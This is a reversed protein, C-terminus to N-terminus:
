KLYYNYIDFKIVLEEYRKMMELYWLDLIFCLTMTTLM